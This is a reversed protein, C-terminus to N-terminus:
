AADVLKAADVYGVQHSAVVYGWAWGGAYELVAFPEGAALTAAPESETSPTLYVLAGKAGTQRVLPRAYHPAFICGALGIDAIDKRYANTLPDLALSPGSLHFRDDARSSFDGSAPSGERPKTRNSTANSGKL